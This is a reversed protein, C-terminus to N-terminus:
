PGRGYSFGALLNKTYSEVPWVSNGYQWYYVSGQPYYGAQLVYPTTAGKSGTTMPRQAADYTSKIQRGSPYTETMLDGALDYTYGFTYSQGQTQVNSATVRGAGDFSTYNNVVNSNKSQTLKGIGNYTFASNPTGDSYNIGTLRDMADYSYSTVSGRPDTRSQLALKSGYSYSYTGSESNTAQTQRGLTDYVFSRSQGSGCGGASCKFVNTLNGAADYTYNTTLNSSGSDEVVTTMRGLADTTTQKAHGLPDTVTTTNGSYSYTTTAQNQDLYSIIRGLSDYSRWTQYGLGDNTWGSVTVLTPNAAMAVRGAFDITRDTAILHGSDTFQRDDIDRGFGDYWVATEILGDNAKAQDRFVEVYNPSVYTIATQGGAADYVNTVRDLSDYRYITTTNGLADKITEAQGTSYDYTATTANNLGDTITVPFAHWSSDYTFTLANGDVDARYLLNGALDYQAGSTQIYGGNYGQWTDTVNGRLNNRPGFNTADDNNTIQTAAPQLEDYRWERDNVTTTGGSSVVRGYPLRILNVGANAYNGNIQYLYTTTIQRLTNSSTGTSWDSDTESTVNGYQDFNYTTKSTAGNDDLKTQRALSQALGGCPGSPPNSYTNTVTVLASPYGTDTETEYGENWANCATGTVNLSDLPSGVMKHVVQLPTNNSNTPDTTLVTDVTGSPYTVTHTTVSSESYGTVIQTVGGSSPATGTLNAYERRQKLRRYIMVGGQGNNQYGYNSGGAGDMYDYEIAGQTPLGIHAVEGYQNYQFTYTSGDAFVVSIAVTPNYNYSTPQGSTPFLAGISQLSSVDKRLHNALQDTYLETMRTVGNFGPYSITLCGCNNSNTTTDDYNINTVRNLSDTIKVLAPASLYWDLPQNYVGTTDYALTMKNGNRDEIWTVTSNDIRYITGSPFVLYGSVKSVGYGISGPALEQVNSDANFQIQSSDASRFSAGRGEDWSSPMPSTCFNAPTGKALGNTVTDLLNIQGGSPTVFVVTTLSSSVAYGGGSCSERSVGTRVFVTGPGSLGYSNKAGQINNSPYPDVAVFANVGVIGINAAMWGPQFNWVLDFGAEGRGASVHHLPMSINLYGNFSNYQEFGAGSSPAAAGGAPTISSMTPTQGSALRVLMYAFLLCLKGASTKIAM